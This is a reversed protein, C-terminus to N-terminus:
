FRFDFGLTSTLNLKLLFFNVRVLMDLSLTGLKILTDSIFLKGRHKLIVDKSEFTSLDRSILRSTSWFFDCSSALKIRVNIGHRCFFRRRQARFSLGLIEVAFIKHILFEFPLYFSKFSSLLRASASDESVFKSHSRNPVLPTFEM